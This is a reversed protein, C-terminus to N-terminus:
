TLTFLLKLTPQTRILIPTPLFLYAGINRTSDRHICGHTGHSGARLVRPIVPHRRQRVARRHVSSRLVTSFPASRANHTHTRTYQQKYGTDWRHINSKARSGRLMCVRIIHTFSVGIVTVEQLRARVLQVKSRRKTLFNKRVLAGFQPFSRSLTM